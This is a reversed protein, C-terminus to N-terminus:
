NKPPVAPPPESKPPAPPAPVPKPPPLNTPDIRLSKSSHLYTRGGTSTSGPVPTPRPSLPNLQTKVKSSPLFVPETNPALESPSLTEVKSSPLFVPKNSSTAGPVPPMPLPTVGDLKGAPQLPPASTTIAASKSSHMFVPPTQAADGTLTMSKSGYLFFGEDTTRTPDTTAAPDAVYPVEVDAPPSNADLTEVVIAPEVVPEATTSPTEEVAPNARKQATVVLYGCASLAFAIAGVRALVIGTSRASQVM